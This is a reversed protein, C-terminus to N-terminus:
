VLLAKHSQGWICQFWVKSNADNFAITNVEKFVAM